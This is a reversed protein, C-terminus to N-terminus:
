AGGRRAMRRCAMHSSHDEAVETRPTVKVFPAHGVNGTNNHSLGPTSSICQQNPNHEAVSIEHAEVFWSHQCAEVASLRESPDDRLLGEVLDACAESLGHQTLLRSESPLAGGTVLMHLVVGASWMDSARSYVGRSLSEPALFEASGVVDTQVFGGSPLRAALGFDILKVTPMERDGASAQLMINEPKFDRHIVANEQRHCYALAEFVQQMINAAASEDFMTQDNFSNCLDTGQVLELVLYSNDDDEFSDLLKCVHSHELSQLVEVEGRAWSAAQANSNSVIKVACESNSAKHHARRVIGFGGIGLVDDSMECVDALQAYRMEKEVQVQSKLKSFAEKFGAFAGFDGTPRSLGPSVSRRLAGMPLLVMAKCLCCQVLCCFLITCLTGM